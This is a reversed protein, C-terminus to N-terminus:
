LGLLRGAPSYRKDSIGDDGKKWEREPTGAALPLPSFSPVRSGIGGYQHIQNKESFHPHRSFIAPSRGVSIPSSGHIKVVGGYGKYTTYTKIVM